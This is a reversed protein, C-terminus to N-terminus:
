FKSCEVKRMKNFDVDMQLLSTYLDNLIVSVRLAVRHITPTSLTSNLSRTSNHFAVQSTRMPMVPLFQNGSTVTVSSGNTVTKTKQLLLLSLKHSLPVSLM